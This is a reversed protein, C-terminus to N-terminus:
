SIFSAEVNYCKPLWRSSSRSGSQICSVEASTQV